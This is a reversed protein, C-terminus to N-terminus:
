ERGGEGKGGGKGGRRERARGGEEEWVDGGGEGGPSLLWSNGHEPENSHQVRKDFWFDKTMPLQHAQGEGGQPRVGAGVGLGRPSLWVFNRGGRGRTKPQHSYLTRTASPRNKKERADKKGISVVGFNCPNVRVRSGL